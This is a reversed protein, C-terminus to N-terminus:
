ATRRLALMGAGQEDHEAEQWHPNQAMFERIAPEIVPFSRTDHFLLFKRAKNGHLALEHKVHEYTHESDHLMLDCEPVDALLSSEYHLHWRDGGLKHLESHWYKEVTLEYSDVRGKCGHLLAITTNGKAVGFEVCSDSQSAYRLIMPLFPTIASRWRTCRLRYALELNM